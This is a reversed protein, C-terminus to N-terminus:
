VREVVEQKKKGSVNKAGESRQDHKEARKAKDKETWNNPSSKAKAEKKGAM